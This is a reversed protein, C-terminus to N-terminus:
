SQSLFALVLLTGSCEHMRDREGLAVPQMIVLLVSREDNGCKASKLQM